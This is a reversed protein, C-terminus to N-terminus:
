NKDISDEKGKYYDDVFKRDKIIPQISAMNIEFIFHRGHLNGDLQWYISKALDRLNELDSLKEIEYNESDPDSHAYFKSRRNSIKQILVSNSEILDKLKECLSILEEKNKILRIEGEKNQNDSFLERFAADYRFNQIQNFLKIFSSKENQEFIKYCNIACISSALFIYHGIFGDIPKLAVGENRASIIKHINMICIELDYIFIKLNGLKDNVTKLELLEKM